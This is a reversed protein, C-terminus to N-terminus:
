LRHELALWLSRAFDIYAFGEVLDKSICNLIWSAVLCNSIRWKKYEISKEEYEDQNELVFYQKDKDILFRIM